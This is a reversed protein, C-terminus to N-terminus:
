PRRFLGEDVKQGFTITGVNAEELVRGGSSLVSRYPVLTGQAYRYDYFKRRYTNGGSEYELMMVRFSKASIFYRTKRGDKDTVDLLHYDVGMIKDRGSLDLTAGNEKYRLFADISSYLQNRFAIAADERPIFASDGFIGFLDQGAMVLSFTTGPFQQDYRTKEIGEDNRLFWRTYIANETRGEANTIAVKGREQATKRLQNLTSRGGPFGYIAVSLEAVQEATLNGSAIQQSSVAFPKEEVPTATPSPQPQQAFATMALLAIPVVPVFIRLLGKDLLFMNSFKINFRLLPNYCLHIFVLM